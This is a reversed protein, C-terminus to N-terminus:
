FFSYWQQLRAPLVIYVYVSDKIIFLPPNPGAVSMIRAARPTDVEAKTVNAPADLVAIGTRNAWEISWICCVSKKEIDDDGDDLVADQM